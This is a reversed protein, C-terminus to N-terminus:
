AAVPLQAAITPTVADTVVGGATSRQRRAVSLFGILKNLASIYGRASGVVIDEDAGSGTFVRQTKPGQYSTVYAEHGQRGDPRISVRTVALAEIGETVSALGYDVLQVQVRVISDIAKFSADVPGTGMGTATRVMNDPGRLKVTATPLGMTGCVVQLDLLEWLKEPQHVEDGVLALIDEDTIHKKKDALSKFRRFMDDLQAVPLDYGLTVLKNRLASRGSLKGLALGAPDSRVLGIEAPDIIEYTLRSKLMGDQHVGSMHSFANAGVIAKHPQVVMGSYDSVMKSAVTIHTPRIGTRLGGM